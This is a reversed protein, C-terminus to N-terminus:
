LSERYVSKFRDLMPLHRLAIFLDPNDFYSDVVKNLDGECNARLEGFPDARISHKALNITIDKKEEDDSSSMLEIDRRIANALNKRSM